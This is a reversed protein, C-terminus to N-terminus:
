IGGTLPDSVQSWHLAAGAPSKSLKEAIYNKVQLTERMEKTRREKEDDSEGNATAMVANQKIILSHM